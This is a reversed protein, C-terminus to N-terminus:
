ASIHSFLGAVERWDPKDSAMAIAAIDDLKGRVTEAWQAGIKASPKRDMDALHVLGNYDNMLDYSYGFDTALIRHVWLKLGRRRADKHYGLKIELRAEGNDNALMEGLRARDIPLHHTLFYDAM